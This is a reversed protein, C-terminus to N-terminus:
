CRCSPTACATSSCCWRSRCAGRRAARIYDQNLVEMMNSHVLRAYYGAGVIGLTVSPLVLSTWRSSAPWPFGAAATPWSSSCSAAWGSRRCRCQRDDGAGARGPRHAQRPVERDARRAPHQRDALHSAGGLSLALTAPFRALIADLVREQTVNSKGLDGRLADWLFRGYQQPLPDDLHLESASIRALRRTPRPAPSPASWTARCPTRSSSCWWRRASCRSSRGSCGNGWARADHGAGAVAERLPRVVDPAPPLGEGPASALRSEVNYLLPVTRPTTWSARGRGAPVPGRAQGRREPRRRPGPSRQGGRHQLLGHQQLREAVIRTGDCLAHLFDGPDPYDETWGMVRSPSRAGSGSPTSAPRQLRGCEARGRHRNGGPGAERGRRDQGLPRHRRHVLAARTFGDGRGAEALLQRAQEPDRVHGAPGPRIGAHGAPDPRDGPRRSQQAGERDADRDVALCVAQRVRRDPFPDMETNM